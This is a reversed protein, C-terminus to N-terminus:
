NVGIPSGIVPLGCTMYPILKYGCKGREWPSDTLPMIGIDLKQIETVEGEETWIVVTERGSFGISKGGGINVLEFDHKKKLKEFTPLLAQLYKLPTRSGIWGIKVVTDSTHNGIKHYKSGDVVTPILAVKAAGAKYARDALYSNGVVVKHSYRMVKDIKRKLMLRVLLYRHLDYNHFVADDNDMVYKKGSKSILWEAWPPMYPFLEKEILICDYPD